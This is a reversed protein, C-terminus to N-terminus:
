QNEPQPQGNLVVKDSQIQNPQIQNLILYSEGNYRTPDIKPNPNTDSVQIM